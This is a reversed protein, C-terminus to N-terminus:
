QLSNDCITLPFFHAFFNALFHWFVGFLALIQNEPESAGHLPAQRLTAVLILIIIFHIIEKMLYRTDKLIQTVIDEIGLQISQKFHFQFLTEKLHPVVVDKPLSFNTRLISFYWYYM